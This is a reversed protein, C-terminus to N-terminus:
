FETKNSWVYRRKGSKKPIRAMWKEAQTLKAYMGSNCPEGCFAQSYRKPDFKKKCLVCTTM